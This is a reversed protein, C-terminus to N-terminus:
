MITLKRYHLRTTIYLEFYRFMIYRYLYYIPDLIDWFEEIREIDEATIKAYTKGTGAKNTYKEM